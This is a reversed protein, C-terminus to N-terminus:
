KPMYGVRWEEDETDKANKVKFKITNYQIGHLSAKSTEGGRNLLYNSCLERSARYCRDQWKPLWHLGVAILYLVYTRVTTLPLMWPSACQLCCFNCCTINGADCQSHTLTSSFLIVKMPLMRHGLWPRILRYALYAVAIPGLALSGGHRCFNSKWILILKTVTVKHARQKGFIELRNTELNLQHLFISWLERLRM